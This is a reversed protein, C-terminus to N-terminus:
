RNEGKRSPTAIHLVSAHPNFYSPHAFKPNATWGWPQSTDAPRYWTTGNADTRAPFELDVRRVPILRIV